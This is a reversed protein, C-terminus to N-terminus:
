AAVTPSSAAPATERPASKAPTSASSDAAVPTSRQAPPPTTDRREPGSYLGARVAMADAGEPSNRTFASIVRDWLCAAKKAALNIFRVRWGDCEHQWHLEVRFGFNFYCPCGTQSPRFPKWGTLALTPFLALVLEPQFGSRISEPLSAQAVISPLRSRNEPKFRRRLKLRITRSPPLVSSTFCFTSISCDCQHENLRRWSM